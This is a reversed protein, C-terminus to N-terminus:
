RGYSQIPEIPVSVISGYDPQLCTSETDDYSIICWLVEFPVQEKSPYEIYGDTIVMAAEVTPDEALRLLGPSMDSGGFGKVKFSALDDIDVLDDGTVEADCQIIRVARVGSTKGFSQIMGFIAPLDGEMSGSTDVVINLLRGEDSRGPMVVDTRDGARRSAKAWSRVPPETDDLWKQLVREWPTVWVGELAHVVANGDGPSIGHVNGVDLVKRLADRASSLEKADKIRARRSHREIATEKPFLEAEERETLLEPQDNLIDSFDHNHGDDATGDDTKPVESREAKTGTDKDKDEELQELLDGLATGLPRKPQKASVMRALSNGSPLEDRIHELEFVLSELTFTELPPQDKGVIRKYSSAYDTWFLGERPIYMSKSRRRDRTISTSNRASSFEAEAFKKELMDNIIFDHAVNVLWRRRPPMASDFRDFVGYLVHYIEHAVVFVVQQVTLADIFAPAVLMRGSATVAATGVRDDLRVDMAALVHVANPFLTEVMALATELKFTASSDTM